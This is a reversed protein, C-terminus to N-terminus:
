IGMLLEQRLALQIVIVRGETLLEAGLHQLSELTFGQEFLDM